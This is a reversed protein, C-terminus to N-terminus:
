ADRLDLEGVIAAADPGHRHLTARRGFEDVVAFVPCGCQCPCSMRVGGQDRYRRLEALLHDCPEGPAPPKGTRRARAGCSQTAPTM